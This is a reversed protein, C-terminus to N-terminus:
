RHCALTASAAMIPARRENVARIIETIDIGRLYSSTIVLVAHRLQRPIVILPIGERSM